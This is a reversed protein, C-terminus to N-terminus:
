DSLQTYFYNAAIAFASSVNLSNILARNHIISLIYDCTAKEENGLGSRENGLAIIVKEKKPPAYDQIKQGGTELGIITATKNQTLFQKWTVYRSSPISEGGLSAKLVEKRDIDPTTGILHIHTFNFSKATRLINGVNACSRINVLAVELMAFTDPQDAM